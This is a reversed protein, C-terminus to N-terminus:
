QLRVMMNNLTMLLVSIPPTKSRLLSTTQTNQLGLQSPWSARYYFQYLSIFTLLIFKDYHATKVIEECTWKCCNFMLVESIDLCVHNSNLISLSIKPNWIRQWVLNCFFFFFFFFTFLDHCWLYFCFHSFETAKFILSGIVFKLPLEKKPAM